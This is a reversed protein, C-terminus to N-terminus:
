PNVVGSRFLKTFVFATCFCSHLLLSEQTLHEEGWTYPPSGKEGKQEENLWTRTGREQEQALDQLRNCHLVDEHVIELEATLDVLSDHLVKNVANFSVTSVDLVDLEQLSNNLGFPFENLLTM